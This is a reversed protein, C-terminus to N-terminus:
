YINNIGRKVQLDGPMMLEFSLFFKYSPVINLNQKTPEISTFRVAQSFEFVKERSSTGKFDNKLFEVIKVVYTSSLTRLTGISSILLKFLKVLSLL